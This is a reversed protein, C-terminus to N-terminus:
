QFLYRPGRFIILITVLGLAPVAVNGGDDDVGGGTETVDPAGLSVLDAGANTSGAGVSVDAAPPAVLVALSTPGGAGLVQFGFGVCAYCLYFAHRHM